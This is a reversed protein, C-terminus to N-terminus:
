DPRREDHHWTRASAASEAAMPAEFTCAAAFPVRTAQITVHDIGFRDHLQQTADQLFADDAGGDPMVLHATMATETTGMAWVHLDRVHAVGPLAALAAQVARLDVGAPVGDFLLHVSQKLLSATGAVIVVAILLSAVPDLWLWGFALALGGAVVVGASVLADAAMHMFAGRINLDDKRGRMFLLATATNVVIGIGAVVMITVGEIPQPSGLRHLAEWALSGMAVLLLVANVFAALISARKWGYTHRVDPRLRGALLAGWALMLGAVDSLNHGADALLALSDIKWGYFAEVVVFAANLGVGIAFARDFSAPGYQHEHATSM